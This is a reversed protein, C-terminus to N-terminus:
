VHARRRNVMWGHAFDVLERVPLLEASGAGVRGKRVSGGAAAYAEGIEPFPEDKYEPLDYEVWVRRGEVRMPSGTRRTPLGVRSEALHLATNNGHGVGLLLVSAGVEYLRGLPSGDGLMDGLEHRAVIREALPGRACFSGAPHGSRVVGPLTRFLEPVRGLRMVPTTRPDYAPLHERVTDHWAEPVAPDTWDRPDSLECSGAVMVLTGEPGLVEGFAEVLAVPGGIVWGLKSLSVHAIVTQGAEVGLLRLDSALSLATAPGRRKALEVADAESM